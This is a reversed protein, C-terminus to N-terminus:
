REVVLLGLLLSGHLQIQTFDIGMAVVYPALSALSLLLRLVFLKAKKYSPKRKGMGLVRYRPSLM